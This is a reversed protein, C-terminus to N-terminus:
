AAPRLAVEAAQLRLQEIHQRQDRARQAMVNLDVRALEPAAESVAKLATWLALKGDIGLAVVELSELRHLAGGSRDDIKAKARAFKEAFWGTLARTTSEAIALDDMLTKLIQRDTEIQAQLNTIDASLDPAEAALHELM